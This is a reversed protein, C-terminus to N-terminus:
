VKLCLFEAKKRTPTEETFLKTNSPWNGKLHTILFGFVLDNKIFCRISRRRGQVCQTM